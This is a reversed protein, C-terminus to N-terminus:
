SHINLKKRKTAVKKNKNDKRKQQQRAKINMNLTQLKAKILMNICKNAIIEACPICIADYVLQKEDGQSKYPWFLVNMLKQKVGVVSQKLLGEFNNEFISVIKKCFKFIKFGPKRLNSTPKFKKLDLLISSDKHVSNVDM